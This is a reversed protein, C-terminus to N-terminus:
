VSLFSAGTVFDEIRPFNPCPTFTQCFSDRTYMIAVSNDRTIVSLKKSSPYLNEFIRLIARRNKELRRACTELEVRSNTPSRVSDFIRYFAPSVGRAQSRSETDMRHRRVAAVKAFQTVTRLEDDDDDDDDNDDVAARNFCGLAQDGSFAYQDSITAAGSTSAVYIRHLHLVALVEGACKVICTSHSIRQFLLSDDAARHSQHSLLSTPIPRYLTAHRPTTTHCGTSSTPPNWHVM